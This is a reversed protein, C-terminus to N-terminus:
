CYTRESFPYSVPKSVLVVYDQFSLESITILIFGGRFTQSKNELNDRCLMGSLFCFQQMQMWHALIRVNCKVCFYILCVQYFASM